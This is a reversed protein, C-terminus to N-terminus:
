PLADSKAYLHEEQLEKGREPRPKQSEKLQTAHRDMHDGLIVFAVNLIDGKLILPM